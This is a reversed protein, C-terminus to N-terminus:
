WGSSSRMHHHHDFTFGLLRRLAEVPEMGEIELGAEGERVRRYADELSQLYLSEKDKFDYYIMRKNSRTRAAVEDIRAGSLGNLRIGGLRDSPHEATYRRSRPNPNAGGERPTLALRRIGTRAGTWGAVNSQVFWNTCQPSGRTM